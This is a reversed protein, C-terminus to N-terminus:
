RRVHRLWLSPKPYFRRRNKRFIWDLSSIAISRLCLQQGTYVQRNNIRHNFHCSGSARSASISTENLLGPWVQSGRVEKYLVQLIVFSDRSLQSLQQRQPWPVPVSLSTAAWHWAAYVPPAAVVPSPAPTAPLSLKKASISYPRQFVPLEELTNGAQRLM